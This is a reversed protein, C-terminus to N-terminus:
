REPIIVVLRGVDRGIGTFRRQAQEHSSRFALAGRGLADNLVDGDQATWVRRRHGDWISLRGEVPPSVLVRELGARACFSDITLGPSDDEHLEPEDFEVKTIEVAKDM